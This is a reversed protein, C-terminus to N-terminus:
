AFTTQTVEPSKQKETGLKTLRYPRCFRSNTVRWKLQCNFCNYHRSDLQLGNGLCRPCTSRADLWDRYTDICDQIHDEDIVKDYHGALEKAKEWAAIELMLLELDSDYTHHGLLAHALEHLLSWSAVRSKELYYFIQKHEPSWCFATGEVFTLEPFDARFQKLLTQM